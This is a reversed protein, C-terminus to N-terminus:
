DGVKRVAVVPFGLVFLIGSAALHWFEPELGFAHAGYYAAAGLCVGDLVMVILRM